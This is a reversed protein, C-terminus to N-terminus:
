YGPQAAVTAHAVYVTPDCGEGNPRYTEPTATVTTEPVLVEGSSRVSVRLQVPRTSTLEPLGVFAPGREAGGPVTACSALHCVTVQVTTSPDLGTVTVSAGSFAGIMTCADPTCGAASLAVTGVALARAVTSPGTARVRSSM